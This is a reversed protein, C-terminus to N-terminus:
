SSRDETFRPAGDVCTAHVETESEPRHFKVEVTSESRDTEVSWGVAPAAGLLTIRSGECSVSVSGGPVTTSGQRTPQTSTPAPAATVTSSTGSRPSTTARSHTRTSSATSGSGATHSNAVSPTTPATSGPAQAVPDSVGRGASAIAVWVLSSTGAVVLLWVGLVLTMVRRRSSM